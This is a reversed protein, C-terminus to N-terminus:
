KRENKIQEMLKLTEGFKAKFSDKPNSIPWLRFWANNYQEWTIFIWSAFGWTFDNEELNLQDLTYEIRHDPDPHAKGGLADNATFMISSLAALIGIQVSSVHKTNKVLEHNMIKRLAFLDAEKEFKNRLEKSPKEQRGQMEEIANIHGLVKHAFEHYLIYNIAYWFHANTIGVLRKKDTLNDAEPNPLNPIEWKAYFSLLNQAHQLTERAQEDEEQALDKGGMPTLVMLGYIHCWLYSFFVDHLHLRSNDCFPGRVKEQSILINLNFSDLKGFCEGNNLEQRINEFAFCIREGFVRIPEQSNDELGRFYPQNSM